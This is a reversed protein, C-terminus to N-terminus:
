YTWLKFKNVCYPDRHDFVVVQGATAEDLVTMDLNRTLLQRLYTRAKPAFIPHFMVVDAVFPSNLWPWKTSAVEFNEALQDWTVHVISYGEKGLEGLSLPINSEKHAIFLVRRHPKLSELSWEPEAAM